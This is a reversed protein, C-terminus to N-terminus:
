NYKGWRINHIISGSFLLVKQPVLAINDRLRSDDIESIDIDDILIKGNIKDIINDNEIVKQEVVKNRVNFIEGVKMTRNNVGRGGIFLFILALKSNLGFSIVLSGICLIPARIIAGIATIIIMIVIMIFVYTLDNNRVGIDILKSM